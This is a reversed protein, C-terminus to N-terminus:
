SSSNTIIVGAKEGTQIGFNLAANGRNTFFELYGFSNILAYLSSDEVQSYYTKLPAETGKIMVKLKGVPNKELLKEMHIRQINAIANGFNDIYIIEGEIIHEAPMAPVPMPLAVYDTIPDGFKLINIGKSLWAAVPAFVDRGHFTASRNPLFYHEGTVHIVQITETQLYVRSFIGNDPGVFYHRDTAVIIPRRPSGVEPDVVALHITKAPFTAFSMELSCAAELINQPSIDHTIDILTVAPNITLIIGKM